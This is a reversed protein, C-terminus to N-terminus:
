FEMKKQEQWCVRERASASADHLQSKQIENTMLSPTTQYMICGWQFPCMLRPWVGHLLPSSSKHSDDLTPRWAVPTKAVKEVELHLSPTAQRM